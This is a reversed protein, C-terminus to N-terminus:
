IRRFMTDTVGSKAAAHLRKFKKPVLGLELSILEQAFGGFRTGSIFREKLTISRLAYLSGEELFNRFNQSGKPAIPKQSLIFDLGEPPLIGSLSSNAEVDLALTVKTVMNPYKELAYTVKSGNSTDSFSEVLYEASRPVGSTFRHASNVARFVFSDLKAPKGSAALAPLLKANVWEANERKGLNGDLLPGLVM